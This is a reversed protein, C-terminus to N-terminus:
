KQVKKIINECMDLVEPNDSDKRIRDKMSLLFIGKEEIVFINKNSLTISIPYKFKLQSQVKIINSILAIIFLNLEYRFYKM